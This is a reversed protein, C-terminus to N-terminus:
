ARQLGFHKSEPTIAVKSIHLSREILPSSDVVEISRMLSQVVVYRCTPIPGTQPRHGVLQWGRVIILMLDNTGDGGGFGIDAEFAPQPLDRLNKTAFPQGDTGEIGVAPEADEESRM